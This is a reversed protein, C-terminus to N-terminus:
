PARYVGPRYAPVAAPGPVPVPRYGGAMPAGPPHYATSYDAHYGGAPGVGRATETTRAGYPTAVATEGVHYAGNPGVHTYGAHAVGWAQAPSVSAFTIAAAVLAALFLKRIM